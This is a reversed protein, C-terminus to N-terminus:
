SVPRFGFRAFVARAKDSTLYDVFHRGGQMNEGAVTVAEYVIPAHATDAFHDIVQLSPHLRAETEFLVGYAGPANLTDALTDMDRFFTFYPELEGDLRLRSLADLAYTGEATYEPDGLAVSLADMSENPGLFSGASLGPAMELKPTAVGKHAALVLSNRAIPTRSYVDVLGRAELQRMWIAKGTIFVNAEAGDEVERIQQNTPGFQTSIPTQYETAYARAILTLPVTLSEDALVTLGSPGEAPAKALLPAPLAIVGEFSLLVAVYASKSLFTLIKNVIM